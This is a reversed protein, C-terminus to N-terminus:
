RGPAQADCSSKGEPTRIFYTLGRRYLVNQKALLTFEKALDGTFGGKKLIESKTLGPNKEIFARLELMAAKTALVAIRHRHGKLEEKTMSEISGPATSPLRESEGRHTDFMDRLVKPPNEMLNQNHELRAM